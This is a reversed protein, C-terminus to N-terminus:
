GLLREFFGRKKEPAKKVIRRPKGDIYEEKFRMMDERRGFRFRVHFIYSKTKKFDDMEESMGLFQLEWLGKLNNRIWDEAESMKGQGHFKHVLEYTPSSVM